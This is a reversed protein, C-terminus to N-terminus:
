VVTKVSRGLSKERRRMMKRVEKDMKLLTIKAAIAFSVAIQSSLLLECRSMTISNDRMQANLRISVRAFSM